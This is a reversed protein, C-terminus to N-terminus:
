RSAQPSRPAPAAPLYKELGTYPPVLHPKQRRALAGPQLADRVRVLDVAGNRQILSEEPEAVRDTHRNDLPDGLM